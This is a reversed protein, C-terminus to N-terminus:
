FVLVEITQPRPNVYLSLSTLSHGVVGLFERDRGGADDMVLEQLSALSRSMGLIRLHDTASFSTLQVCHFTDSICAALRKDDRRKDAEEEIEWSFYLGKLVLTQVLGFLNLVEVFSKGQVDLTNYFDPADSDRFDFSTEVFSLSRLNRPFSWGRLREGHSCPTLGSNHLTFAELSPLQGLLPDLEAVNFEISSITLSKIYRALKSHSHLFEPFREISRFPTQYSPQLTSEAFLQPLASANWYRSLTTCTALDKKDLNSVVIDVLERPLRVERQTSMKRTLVYTM